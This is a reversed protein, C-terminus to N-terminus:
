RREGDLLLAVAASLDPVISVGAYAASGRIEDVVSQGRGTLVLVARCGAALAAQVDTLHDGVFVSTALSVGLQAAGRVLMGPQPKRCECGEEPTHPCHLVADVRGGAAEIAALMKDHVLQLSDAALYGRGIGAQNTVVVVPLGARHLARLAELSGPLFQFEEWRSVYSGDVNENIVGDRDLFVAALASVDPRGREAACHATENRRM